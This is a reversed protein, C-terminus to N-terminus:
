LQAVLIGWLTFHYVVLHARCDQGVLHVWLLLEHRYDVLFREEGVYVSRSTWSNLVQKVWCWTLLLLVSHAVHRGFLAGQINLLPKVQRALLHLFRGGHSLCWTCWSDHIAYPWSYSWWGAHQFLRLGYRSEISHVALLNNSIVWWYDLSVPDRICDLM